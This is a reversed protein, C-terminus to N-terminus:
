GRPNLTIKGFSLIVGTNKREEAQARQRAKRAAIPHEKAVQSWANMQEIRAQHHAEKNKDSLMQQEGLNSSHSAPNFKGM